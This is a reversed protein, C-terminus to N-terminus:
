IEVLETEENQESVIINVSKNSKELRDQLTKLAGEHQRTWLIM